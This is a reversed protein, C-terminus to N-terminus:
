RLVGRTAMVRAYIWLGLAILFIFVTFVAGGGGMMEMGNNFGYNYIATVVMSVLSVLLVPVALKRKFLLLLTGLVGGWVALAWFAISWSPFSYFYDLQEETFRALYAENKTQTMFYDFAGVANWLTGLIGIVWLHWPTRAPPVSTTETM